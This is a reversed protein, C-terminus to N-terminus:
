ELTTFEDKAKDLPYNTIFGWQPTISRMSRWLNNLNRQEQDYTYDEPSMSIGLFNKLDVGLNIYNKAYRASPILQTIVDDWTMHKTLTEQDLDIDRFDSTTKAYTGVGAANLVLALSAMPSSRLIGSSVMPLINEEIDENFDIGLAYQWYEEREEESMGSTRIATIGLNGLTALAISISFNAAQYLADGEEIRHASKMLRKSFSRVAFSKFQMLLNILPSADAEWNFTDLVHNRLITEDAAYDGLRRLTTLARADNTLLDINDLIIRGTEDAHFAKSLVTMMHTYDEPSIGLRKLTGKRLFGVKANEPIVRVQNRRILESLMAGRVTDVINYQSAQLFRTTPLANALYQTGSVIDAMIKNRGYRYRNFRRIDSWINVIKPERCFILDLAMREDAKTMGGKSFRTILQDMGPISKLLLAPGYALVGASMETYNLLGMFTNASAFTLNRLVESMATGLGLDTDYDRTSMGFFKKLLIDTSRALQERRIEAREPTMSAVEQKIAEDFIERMGDFGEVDYVRSAIEEGGVRRMYRKITDKHNMRLSDICFDNGEWDTKWPLRHGDPLASNPTRTDWVTGKNNGQDAIGLATKYAERDLWRNFEKSGMDPVLAIMEEGSERSAKKAKDQYQLTFAQYMEGMREPDSRTGEILNKKIKIVLQKLAGEYPGGIEALADAVKKPDWARPFFRKFDLAGVKFRGSSILKQRYKEIIGQYTKALFKVDSDCNPFEALNTPEDGEIIQYIAKDLADDDMGRAYLRKYIDETDQDLKYVDSNIINLLEEATTSESTYQRYTVTGDPEVVRRGEELKGAKDIYGRLLGTPSIDSFDAAIRVKLHDNLYQKVSASAVKLKRGVFTNEFFTAPLSRESTFNNRIGMTEMFTKGLYARSKPSLAEFAAGFALGSLADMAMSTEVGTIGERLQGSAVNSVAGVGIRGLAGLGGSLAGAALNIPDVLADGFGSALSDLIPAKAEYGAYELNEKLTKIVIPIDEKSRLQRLAAKTPELEYNFAKLIEEQEDATPIYRDYAHVSYDRQQNIRFWTGLASHEIGGSVGVIESAEEEQQEKQAQLRQYEEASSPVISFQSMSSSSALPYNVIPM